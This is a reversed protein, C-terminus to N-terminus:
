GVTESSEAPVRSGADGGVVIRVATGVGVGMGVDVM